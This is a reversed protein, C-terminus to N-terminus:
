CSPACESYQAGSKYMLDSTFIQQIRELYDVLITMLGSDLLLQHWNSKEEAM